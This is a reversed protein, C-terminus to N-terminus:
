TKNGGNDLSKPEVEIGAKGLVWAVESRMGYFNKNTHAGLSLTGQDFRLWIRRHHWYFGMILGIMSIAAGIWIYPVASDKRINLYTIAGSLKVNEMGNVKIEFRDAISRNLADQNFQLKDIQNPFYLYAEGEEKLGPGTIIFLYAPANPERSLTTPEGNSGYAFEMYQSRLNLTYPGVQFTTQPNRIDLEFPGFEEGTQKNILVPKVLELRPTADFGSQYAKLGEYSLPDNLVIDHRAVEELVPEKTLENCDEVCRYLVAKTEYLKPRATGKLSDPLEDDTYYNVTFKENKIYYETGEIENTQGEPVAVYMDMHLGPISRALVALLFLILGIHNIYPGWRSFRNKEALLATGETHVKYRKKKLQEAIREVFQEESGEIPGTYVVKQRTIFRLHKRIQQKSLARYLPLVRDLSCIVLSTGIMVLLTIYWWSNYTHSLGLMYYIKGITGHNMEYYTAPDETLMNEQTFITGLVSALLTIIILYVAIKVSSFFSWIKDILNPNAKQSRRAVGDYRMELPEDSLLEEGLPKGCSECLVTGVHNQHGCECKTNQFM